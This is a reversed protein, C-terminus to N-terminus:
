HASLPELDNQRAVIFAFDRDDTAAIREGDAGYILWMYRGEYMDHKIFAVNEDNWESMEELVEPALDNWNLKNLM